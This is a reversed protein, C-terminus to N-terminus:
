QHEEMENEAFIQKEFARSTYRQTEGDTPLKPRPSFLLSFHEVYGGSIFIRDTFKRPSSIRGLCLTNHM